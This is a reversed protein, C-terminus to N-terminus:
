WISNENDENIEAISLEKVLYVRGVSQTEPDRRLIQEFGMKKLVQGLKHPSLRFNKNKSIKDFIETNTMYSFEKTKLKIDIDDKNLDKKPLKFYKLLLEEEATVIQYKANAENIRDIEKGAFWWEFKNNIEWLVQAYLQDIDFKRLFDITETEIVLFRRSGTLDTLFMNKNISGCFSARRPSNEAHRAYPRRVTISDITMLSKLHGIEDHRTVSELEDLNILFNESLATKSDKDQPNIQSILYYKKLEEPVLKGIISTKGIGQPGALVLCSHNIGRGLACAVVGRIWKRFYFDWLELQDDPVKILSMFELVYDHGDWEPLNNFYEEFPNFKEVFDSNLIYEIKNVPVKIKKFRLAKNISRWISNVMTDSIPVFEESIEGTETNIEAYETKNNIVNYRLKFHNELFKEIYEIDSRKAANDSFIDIEKPEEDDGTDINYTKGNRGITGHNKKATGNGGLKSRKPYLKSKDFGHKEALYIVSAITPKPSRHKIKYLTGQNIDPSWSEVLQVATNEDFYNGIGSVVKGWEDYDLEKPIHSLMERVMDPTISVDNSTSYNAIFKPEDNQKDFIDNIQVEELRCGFVKIEANSNGFFLRCIDKCSKDGKFKEILIQAIDSYVQADNIQKPLVFIIRFKHHEPTHSATTYVMLSNNMIWKNAVVEDFSVYGEEDTLKHSDFKGTEANHVKKSNDIDVSIIESFDIDSVKPKKQNVEDSVMVGGSYAYGAKIHDALQYEDFSANEWGPLSPNGKNIINKNISLQFKM